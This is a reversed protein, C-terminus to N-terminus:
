KDRQHNFWWERACVERSSGVGASTQWWRRTCVCWQCASILHLLWCCAGRLCSAHQSTVLEANSQGVHRDAVPVIASGLRSFFV